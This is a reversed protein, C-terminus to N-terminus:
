NTKIPVIEAINEICVIKQEMTYGDETETFTIESSLIMLDEIEDMQLRIREAAIKEAQQKTYTVTKTVPIEAYVTKQYIPLFLNDSLSLQITEEKITDCSTPLNGGKTFVKITKGLFIIQKEIEIREYDVTLAEKKPITVSFTHTTRARVQGYANQFYTGHQGEFVGSVLLEGKKVTQGVNVAITGSSCDFGVIVGDRGAVLCALKGTNTSLEKNKREKVEVHAITGLMNVSIWSITDSHLVVRNCLSEIDTKPLFTGCIFGNESLQALVEEDTLIENGTIRIDFVFQTSFVLLFSFLLIGLCLGPRKFLRRLFLHIGREKQIRYSFGKSSFICFLKTADSYPCSLVLHTGELFLSRYNAGSHRVTEVISLHEEKNEFVIRMEGFLFDIIRM